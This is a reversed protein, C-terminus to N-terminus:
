DRLEPPGASVEGGGGRRRGQGGRDEAGTRQGQGGGRDVKTDTSWQELQLILGDHSERM